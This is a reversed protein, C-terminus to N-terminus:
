SMLKIACNTSISYPDPETRFLLPNPYGLLLPDSRIRFVAEKKSKIKEKKGMDDVIKRRIM